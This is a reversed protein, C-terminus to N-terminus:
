RRVETLLEELMEPTLGNAKAEAAVGSCFAQFEEIQVRRLKEYDKPSIVVAADRNQRRIVVPERQASDILAGFNQKADTATIYQM